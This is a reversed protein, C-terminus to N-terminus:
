FFRTYLYIIGFACLIMPVGWVANLKVIESSPVGLRAQISLQIGSLSSFCVGLSWGFLMSLALLNMDTVVPALIGGALAVTTVPHMGIIALVIFIVVLICAEFFGFHDPIFDMNLSTIMAAVGCALVASSLFLLVEGAMKPLGDQIHALMLRWWSARRFCFLWIVTFVLSILTVLTIVPVTLWILHVVFVLVCMFVPLWLSSVTMPYGYSEDALPHRWMQWATLILMIAAMPMGFMLLTTLQSGPASMLTFGMTAFFPAWCCCASFARVLMFSQLPNLKKVTSMHEGIMLPASMNMVSAFVHTSLLTKLLAIKGKPFVDTQKVNALAVIRLFGVSVLMSLIVQNGEIATYVYKVDAHHWFGIAFFLAAFVLLIGTQIKQAKKANKFLLIAAVWICFGALLSYVKQGTLTGVLSAFIMM